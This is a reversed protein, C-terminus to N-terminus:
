NLTWQLTDMQMFLHTLLPNSQPVDIPGLQSHCQRSALRVLENSKLQVGTARYIVLQSRFIAFTDLMSVHKCMDDLQDSSLWLLHGIISILANLRWQELLRLLLLKAKSALMLIRLTQLRVVHVFPRFTHAPSKHAAFPTSMATCEFNGRAWHLKTSSAVPLPEDALQATLLSPTFNWEFGIVRAIISYEHWFHFPWHSASFNAARLLRTGHALVSCCWATCIMVVATM